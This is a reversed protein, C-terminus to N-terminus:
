ISAIIAVKDLAYFNLALDAQELEEVFEPYQPLLILQNQCWDLGSIEAEFTNLPAALPLIQVPTETADPYSNQAAGAQYCLSLTILLLFRLPTM